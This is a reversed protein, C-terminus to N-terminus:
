RTKWWLKIMFFFTGIGQGIGAKSKGTKRKEFTIPYETAKYISKTKVLTELGWKFGKNSIPYKQFVETKAAIFGSMNDTINLHFLAKAFKCYTRSIVKRSFSDLSKGGKIYRSGIVIATDETLLELMAPIVQPTHSGDSDLIVCCKGQAKKIGQMVAYGLGQETQILIEKYTQQNLESLLQSLYPESKVPLVVTADSPQM